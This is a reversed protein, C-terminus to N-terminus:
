RVTFLRSLDKLSLTRKSRIYQIGWRGALECLEPESVAVGITSLQTTLYDAGITGKEAMKGRASLVNYIQMLMAKDNETQESQARHAAERARETELEKAEEADDGAEGFDIVDAFALGGVKQAERIDKASLTEGAAEGFPITDFSYQSAAAAYVHMPNLLARRAKAPPGFPYIQFKEALTRGRLPRQGIIDLQVYCWHPAQFTKGPMHKRLSPYVRWDCEGIFGNDVNGEQSTIGIVWVRQKRLSALAKVFELQRGTGQRYRNLLAHLEDVILVSHAPVRQAFLFIDVADLQWGYLLSMNSFVYLGADNFMRGLLSAVNTKGAGRPGSMLLVGSGSDQLRPRNFALRERAVRHEKLRYNRSISDGSHQPLEAVMTETVARAKM